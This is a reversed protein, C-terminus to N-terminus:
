DLRRFDLPAVRVLTAQLAHISWIIYVTGWLLLLLLKRVLLVVRALHANDLLPLRLCGLRMLIEYIDMYWYKSSMRSCLCVSLMTARFYVPHSVKALSAM